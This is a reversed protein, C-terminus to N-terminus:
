WPLLANKITSGMGLLLHDFPFSKLSDKSAGQTLYTDPRETEKDRDRDRERERYTLQIYIYIYIYIYIPKCTQIKM